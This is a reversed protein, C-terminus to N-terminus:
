RKKRILTILVLTFSLGCSIIGANFGTNGSPTGSDTLNDMFANWIDPEIGYNEEPEEGEPADPAPQDEDNEIYKGYMYSMFDDKSSVDYDM